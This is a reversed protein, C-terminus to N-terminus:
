IKLDEEERMICLVDETEKKSERIIKKATIVTIVYCEVKREDV